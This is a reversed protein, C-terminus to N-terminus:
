WTVEWAFEEEGEPEVEEFDILADEPGYNDIIATFAGRAFSKPLMFAEDVALRASRDDIDYLYRGGPYEMDSNRYVDKHAQALTEFAERLDAGEPVPVASAAAEGGFKMTQEGVDDVIREFAEAVDGVKYWGDPDVEGIVEDFMERTKKEFISSVEGTSDIFANIYTGTVEADPDYKVM